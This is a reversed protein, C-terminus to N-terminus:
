EFGWFIYIYIDEKKYKVHIKLINGHKQKRVNSQVKVFFVHTKVQTNAYVEEKKSWKFIYLCVYTHEKCQIKVHYVLKKRLTKEICMCLNSEIKMFVCTKIMKSSYKCCVCLNTSIIAISKLKAAKHQQQRKSSHQQSGVMMKAHIWSNTHTKFRRSNCQWIITSQRYM